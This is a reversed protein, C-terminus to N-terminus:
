PRFDLSLSEFRNTLVECQAKTRTNCQSGMVCCGQVCQQVSSCTPDSFFQDQCDAQNTSLLCEGTEEILCCGLTDQANATKLVNPTYFISLLFIILLVSAKSKLLRKKM